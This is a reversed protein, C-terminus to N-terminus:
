GVVDFGQDRAIKRLRGYSHQLHVLEREISPSSTCGWREIDLLAQLTSVEATAIRLAEVTEAVEVQLHHFALQPESPEDIPGYDLSLTSHVFSRAELLRLALDDVRISTKTRNAEM